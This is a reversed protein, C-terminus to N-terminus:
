WKLQNFATYHKDKELLIPEEGKPIPWKIAIVPDNWPIGQEDASNWFDTVKYCFKAVDSIVYFGHAFGESIYFQKNNEKSLEIGFWQGFTSSSKRCDVAVDFVAGEIVWILKEQPHNKRLHLGRLVGKISMSQNDQVFRKNFGAEQMYKQNYTEIYCESSNKIIKPEIIYLGEIPAKTIKLKGM